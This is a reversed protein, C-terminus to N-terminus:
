VHEASRGGNDIVQYLHVQRSDASLVKFTINDVTISEGREARDWGPFKPAHRSQECQRQAPGDRATKARAPGETLM